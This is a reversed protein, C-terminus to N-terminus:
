CDRKKFQSKNNRLERATRARGGGSKKQHSRWSLLRRFERQCDHRVGQSEQAQYRAQRKVARAVSSRESIKQGRIKKVVINTVRRIQRQVSPNFSFGSRGPRSVPRVVRVVQRRHENRLVNKSRRKM